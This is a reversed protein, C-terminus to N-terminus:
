IMRILTVEPIVKRLAPLLHIVQEVLHTTEEAAAVALVALSVPVGTSIPAGAVVVLQLLLILFQILVPVELDSKAVLDLVVVLEL